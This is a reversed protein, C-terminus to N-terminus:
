AAFWERAGLGLFVVAVLFTILYIVTWPMFGVADLNVRRLRRREAWVSALAITLAAAGAALHFQWLHPFWDEM